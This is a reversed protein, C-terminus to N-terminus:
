SAPTGGPVDVAGAGLFHEMIRFHLGILLAESDKEGSLAAVARMLGLDGLLIQLALVVHGGRAAMDLAVKDALSSPFRAVLPPNFGAEKGLTLPESTHSPTLTSTHAATARRRLEDFAVIRQEAKKAPAKRATRAPAKRAQPPM